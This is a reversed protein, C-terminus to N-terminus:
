DNFSILDAKAVEKLSIPHQSFTQSSVHIVARRLMNAARGFDLTPSREKTRLARISSGKSDIHYPRKLWQV